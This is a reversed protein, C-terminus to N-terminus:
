LLETVAHVKQTIINWPTFISFLDHTSIYLPNYYTPYM